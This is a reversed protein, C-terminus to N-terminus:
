LRIRLMHLGFALLGLGLLPQFLRIDQRELATGSVTKHALLNHWENGHRLRLYTGGTEAAIQQLPAENLQTTVVHNSIQMYGQFKRDPGYLPLRSPESHGLGLTIIRVGRRVAHRLVAPLADATDGGDSFLLMVQERDSQEPFITLGMELAAAIDSGGVSINDLRVWHTLIFDLATIDNTLEAQRFSVGAFTVLGIRNGQLTPLLSRAIQRAQELRSHLGYDEAAMSKSVDLVMVVDLAGARLQPAGYPLRPDTLALNISLFPLLLLTVATWKHHLAPWRSPTRHLLTPDGFHRLFVAQRRQGLHYLLAVCPLLVLLWFAAPQVIRM